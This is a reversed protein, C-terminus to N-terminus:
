AQLLKYIDLAGVDGETVFKIRFLAPVTSGKTIFHYYTVSPFCGLHATVGETQRSTIVMHLVHNCHPGHSM